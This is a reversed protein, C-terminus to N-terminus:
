GEAKMVGVIDIVWVSVQPASAGSQAPDSAPAQSVRTILIRSGVNQGVVGGQDAAIFLPEVGWSSEQADEAGFPSVVAKYLIYDGEEVVPGTGTLIPTVAPEAPAIAGEAYSISPEQGPEGTVTVGEPLAAGSETANASAGEDIEVASSTNLIDVVFVLTSNAPISGQANAGYGWQAPVVLEVRDGVRQGALGSRWGEIVQNLSFGVPNGPTDFSSEVLTGDWLALEYNVIVTDGELVQAGSGEHLTKAAIQTFSDKGGAAIEPNEGFGGTVEPFDGKGSRDVVPAGSQAGSQASATDDSSCSGLGVVLSLAAGIAAVRSLVINM